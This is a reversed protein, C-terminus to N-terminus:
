GAAERAGRAVTDPHVGTAGAVAKIGGRGLRAAGAGLVIRRQREDLHPRVMAYVGALEEATGGDDSM